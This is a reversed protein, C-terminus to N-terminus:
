VVWHMIKVVTPGKHEAQWHVWFQQGPRVTEWGRELIAKQPLLVKKWANFEDDKHVVFGRGRMRNYWCVKVPMWGDIKATEQAHAELDFARLPIALTAIGAMASFVGRRSIMKDEMVSYQRWSGKVGGDRFNNPAPETFSSFIFFSVAALTYARRPKVTFISAPFNKMLGVAIGFPVLLQFPGYLLRCCAVVAM